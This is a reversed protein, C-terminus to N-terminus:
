RFKLFTWHMLCLFLVRMCGGAGMSQMVILLHCRWLLLSMVAHAPWTRQTQLTHRNSGCPAKWGLTNNQTWLFAHRYSRSPSFIQWFSISNLTMSDRSTQESAMSVLVPSYWWSPLHLPFPGSPHFAASFFSSIYCYNIFRLSAVHTSEPDLRLSEPGRTLKVAWQKM